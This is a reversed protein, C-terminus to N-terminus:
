RNCMLRRKCKEKTKRQDFGMAMILPLAFGEWRCDPIMEGTYKNVTGLVTCNEGRGFRIILHKYPIENIIIGDEIYTKLGKARKGSKLFKEIGKNNM